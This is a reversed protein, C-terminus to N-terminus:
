RSRTQRVRILKETSVQGGNKYKTKKPPPRKPGRPHKRYRRLEVQSATAKLWGAMEAARAAVSPVPEEADYSLATAGAHHFELKENGFPCRVPADICPATGTCADDWRAAAVAVM